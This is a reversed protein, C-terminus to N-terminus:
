QVDIKKMISAVQKPDYNDLITQQSLYMFHFDRYPKNTNQGDGVAVNQVLIQPAYERDPVEYGVSMGARDARSQFNCEAYILPTARHRYDHLIQANLASVTAAMAGNGAEEPAVSWETSEILDLTQGNAINMTLKEAMAVSIIKGETNKVASFWVDREKRPKKKGAEIRKRLNTVEEEKWGFTEKWLTFVQEEEKDTFTSVVRLGEDYAKAVREEPSLLSHEKRWKVDAEVEAMMQKRLLITKNRDKHNKALYVLVSGDGSFEGVPLAVELYKKLRNKKQLRDYVEESVFGRFTTRTLGKDAKEAAVRPFVEGVLLDVKDPRNSYKTANVRFRKDSAERAGLSGTSSVIEKSM